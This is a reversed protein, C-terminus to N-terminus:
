KKQAFGIKNAELNYVMMFARLFPTGLIYCSNSQYDKGDIPTEIPDSKFNDEDNVEFQLLCGSEEQENESLKKTYFIQPIQLQLDM